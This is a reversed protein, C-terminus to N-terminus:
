TPSSASRVSRSSRAASTRSAASWGACRATPASSRSGRCPRRWRGPATVPATPAPRSRGPSTIHPLSAMTALAWGRRALEEALDGYRVGGAVRVSRDAEDLELDGPLDLTSVLDGTTDALDTFAHRTGLARVREAGAVIGQLEEVTTPRHVREAAYTHNGAWNTLVRGDQRDPGFDVFAGSFGPGEIVHALPSKFGWARESVPVQLWRTQREAVRAHLPGLNDWREPKGWVPALAERM